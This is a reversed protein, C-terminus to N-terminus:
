KKTITKYVQRYSQCTLRAIQRYSANFQRLEITVERQQELSLHEFDSPSAINWLKRMLNTVEEDSHRVFTDQDDDLCGMDDPLTKNILYTLDEIPYRKLIARVNCVQTFIIGRLDEVPYGYSMYENWSSWPYESVTKTIGAKVPNQHIYRLLTTFYDMNNCPESRFRDQFVHGVRGYKCNYYQAYSTLLRKMSHEIEEDFERYLLHVHNSMLCWAYFMCNISSLLNGKEDYQRPLEELLDILKLRDEDDGFINQKNNGRFMIHYMGVPSKERAQRPM